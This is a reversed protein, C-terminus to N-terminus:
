LSIFNSYKLTQFFPRLPRGPTATVSAPAAPNNNNEAGTSGRRPKSSASISRQVVRSNDITCLNKSPNGSGSSPHTPSLPATGNNGAVSASGTM